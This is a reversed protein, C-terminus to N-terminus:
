LYVELKYSVVKKQPDDLYIKFYSIGGAPITELDAYTYDEVVFDGSSDFGTANLQVFSLEKNGKNQVYGEIVVNNSGILSRYGTSNLVILDPNQSSASIYRIDTKETTVIYFSLFILLCLAVIIGIKRKNQKGLWVGFRTVSEYGSINPFIQNLHSAIKKNIIIKIKKSGYDFQLCPYTLIRGECWTIEPNDIKDLSYTTPLLRTLEYQGRMTEFVRIYNKNLEIFTPQISSGTQFYGVVNSLNYGCNLCYNEEPVLEECKPCIARKVRGFLFFLFFSLIFRRTTTFLFILSLVFILVWLEWIFPINLKSSLYAYGMWLFLLIFGIYLTIKLIKKFSKEERLNEGCIDCIKADDPFKKGCKPCFVM